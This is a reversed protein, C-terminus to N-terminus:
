PLFQVELNEEELIFYKEGIQMSSDRFSDRGRKKEDCNENRKWVIERALFHVQRDINRPRWTVHDVLFYRWGIEGINGLKIAFNILRSKLLEAVLKAFIVSM